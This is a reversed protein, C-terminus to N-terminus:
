DRGKVTPALLIPLHVLRIGFAQLGQFPLLLARFELLHIRLGHSADLDQLLRDFFSHARRVALGAPHESQM